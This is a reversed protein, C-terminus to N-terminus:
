SKVDTIHRASGLYPKWKPQTPGGTRNSRSLFVFLLTVLLSILYVSAAGLGFAILAQSATDACPSINM